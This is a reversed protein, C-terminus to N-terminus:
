YVTRLRNVLQDPDDSLFKFGKGILSASRRQEIQEQQRKNFAAFTNQHEMVESNKEKLEFEEYIPKIFKTCKQGRNSKTRGEPTLFAKTQLVM